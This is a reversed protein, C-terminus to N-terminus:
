NHKLRKQRVGADRVDQAFILRYVNHPVAVPSWITEMGGSKIWRDVHGVMQQLSRGVNSM